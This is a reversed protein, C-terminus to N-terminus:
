AICYGAVLSDQKVGINFFEALFSDVVIIIGLISIIISLIKQKEM